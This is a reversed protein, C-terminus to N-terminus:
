VKRFISPLMIFFHLDQFGSFLTVSYSVAYFIRNETDCAKLSPYYDQTYILEHSSDDEIIYSNTDNAWKVLAM